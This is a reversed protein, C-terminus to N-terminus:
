KALRQNSAKCFKLNDDTRVRTLLKCFESPIDSYDIFFSDNLYAQLLGMENYSELYLANLQEISAKPKRLRENRVNEEAIEKEKSFYSRLFEQPPIAKKHGLYQLETLVASLKEQYAAQWEGEEEEEEVKITDSIFKAKRERAIKAEMDRTQSIWGRVKLPVCSLRELHLPLELKNYISLVQKVAKQIMEKEHMEDYTAIKFGEYLSHRYTSPLNETASCRDVIALMKETIAKWAIGVNKKHSPGVEEALQIAIKEAQEWSTPKQEMIRRFLDLCPDKTVSDPAQLLGASMEKKYITFPKFASCGLKFKSSTTAVVSPNVSKDSAPLVVPCKNTILSCSSTSM